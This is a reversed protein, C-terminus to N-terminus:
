DVLTPARTGTTQKRITDSRLLIVGFGVKVLLDVVLYAFLAVTIPIVDIVYGLLWVVPYLAWLVIVINRLMSFLMAVEASQQAAERSLPRVLLVLVGLYAAVSAGWLVFKLTESDLGGMGRGTLVTALGLLVMSVDFGVLAGITRRAGKAVLGLAFLILPTTLLWDVYHIWYVTDAEGGQVVTTVGYGLSMVLYAVAAIASVAATIAYLRRATTNEEGWGSGIFYATGLVMGITGVLLWLRGSDIAGAQLLVAM